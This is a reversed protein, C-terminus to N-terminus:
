RKEGARGDEVILQLEHEEEGCSCIFLLNEITLATAISSTEGFRGISKSVVCLPAFPWWAIPLEAM